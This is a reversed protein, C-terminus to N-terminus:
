LVKSQETNSNQSKQYLAQIERNGIIKRTTFEINNNEKLIEEIEIKMDEQEKLLRTIIEKYEKIEKANWKKDKQKKLWLTINRVDSLIPLKYDANEKNKKYEKTLYIFDIYCIVQGILILILNDKLSQAYTYDNLNQYTKVLEYYPDIYMDNTNIESASETRKSTVNIDEILSYINSYKIIEEIEKDFYEEYPLIFKYIDRTYEASDKKVWPDYMQLYITNEKEKLYEENITEEMSLTNTTTTTTKVKKHKVFFPGIFTLAFISISLAYSIVARTIDKFKNKQSIELKKEIDKITEDSNSIARDIKKMEETNKNYCEQLDKVRKIISELIKTDECIIIIEKIISSDFYIDEDFTNSNINNIILELKKLDLDKSRLTNIEKIILTSIYSKSVKDKVIYDYLKSNTLGNSIFEIKIVKYIAEYLSNLIKAYNPFTLVDIEKIKKLCSILNNSIDKLESENDSVIDSVYDCNSEIQFYVLFNELSTIISNIESIAQMYIAENIMKNALKENTNNCSKTSYEVEKKITSIKNLYETTDKGLTNISSILMEAYSLKSQFLILNDTTM